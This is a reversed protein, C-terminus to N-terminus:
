NDKVRSSTSDGFSRFKMVNSRKFREVPELYILSDFVFIERECIYREFSALRRVESEEKTGKVDYKIM